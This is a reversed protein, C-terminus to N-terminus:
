DSAKEGSKGDRPTPADAPKPAAEAKPEPAKPKEVKPQPAEPKEVKPAAAKSEVAKPADAKPAEAKAEAAKPKKPKAKAAIAPPKRKPKVKKRTQEARTVAQQANWQYKKQFKEVRGATDVFRQQGTFFPHCNSCVEVNLVPVTARTTFKNGCGCTVQCEVYEPHIGQKM